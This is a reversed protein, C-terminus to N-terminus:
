SVQGRQNATAAAITAASALTDMAQDRKMEGAITDARRRVIAEHVLSPWGGVSIAACGKRAREASLAERGDLPLASAHM